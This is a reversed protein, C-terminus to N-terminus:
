RPGLHYGRAALATLQCQKMAGKRRGLLTHPQPTAPFRRNTVILSDISDSIVSESAKIRGEYIFCRAMQCTM